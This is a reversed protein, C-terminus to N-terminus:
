KQVPEIEDRRNKSWANEDNGEVAPKEAGFSVTHVRSPEVGLTVLYKRAVEARRQGLAINYEETGREDCHGTIKVGVDKHDKLAEAVRNLRTENEKSLNASDFEFHLVAGQLIAALDEAASPNTNAVPTTEEPAAAVPTTPAGTTETVAPKATACGLLAGLTLAPFLIKKM